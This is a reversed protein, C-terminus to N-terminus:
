YQLVKECRSLSQEIEKNIDTRPISGNASFEWDTRPPPGEVVRYPVRKLSLLLWYSAFRSRVGKCRRGAVAACVEYTFTGAADPKPGAQFGLLVAADDLLFAPFLWALLLYLLM